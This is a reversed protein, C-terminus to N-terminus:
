YSFQSFTIHTAGGGTGTMKAVRTAEKSWWGAFPVIIHHGNTTTPTSGDFTVYFDHGTATIYCCTTKYDLPVSFQYTANNDVDLTQGPHGDNPVPYLNVVYSNM